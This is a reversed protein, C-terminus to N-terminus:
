CNVVTLKAGDGIANKIAQGTSATKPTVIWNYGQVYYGQKIGFQKAIACGPGQSLTMTYSVQQANRYEDITIDEGNIMCSLETVPTIGIGGTSASSPTAACGLPALKAAIEQATM